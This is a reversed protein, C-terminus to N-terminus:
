PWCSVSMLATRGLLASAEATLLRDARTVSVSPAIVAFASAIVETLVVTPRNEAPPLSRMPTSAVGDPARARIPKLVDIVSAPVEYSAANKRSAM